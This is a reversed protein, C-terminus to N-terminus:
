QGGGSERFHVQPAEVKGSGSGVSTAERRQSSAEGLAEIAPQSDSGHGPPQVRCM